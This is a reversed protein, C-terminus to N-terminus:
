EADAEGVWMAKAFVAPIVMATMYMLIQLVLAVTDVITVAIAGTMGLEDAAYVIGFGGIGIGLVTLVALTPYWYWNPTQRVASPPTAYGLRYMKKLHHILTQSGDDTM